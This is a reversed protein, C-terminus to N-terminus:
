RAPNSQRTPAVVATATSRIARGSAAVSPKNPAPL